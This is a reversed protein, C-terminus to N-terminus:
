VSRLQRPSPSTDNTSAKPNMLNDMLYGFFGMFPRYHLATLVLYSPSGGEFRTNTIPFGNDDKSGDTAETITRTAGCVEAMCGCLGETLADFMAEDDIDNMTSVLENPSMEEDEIEKDLEAIRELDNDKIANAREQQKRTLGFSKFVAQVDKMFKKVAFKTPEPVSGVPGGWESFDYEIKGGISAGSFKPM